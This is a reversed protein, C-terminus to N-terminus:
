DAVVGEHTSRGVLWRGSDGGSRGVQSAAAARAAACRGGFAASGGAASDAAMRMHQM